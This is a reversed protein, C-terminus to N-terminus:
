KVKFYVKVVGGTKTQSIVMYNGDIEAYAEDPFSTDSDAKLYVKSNEFKYDYTHEDTGDNFVVESESFKFSHNKYEDKYDDKNLSGTVVVKSYVFTKNEISKLKGCAVFLLCPVLLVALMLVSFIKKKM